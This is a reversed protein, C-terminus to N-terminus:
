TVEGRQYTLGLRDRHGHQNVSDVLNQPKQQSQQLSSRSRSLKNLQDLTFQSSSPASKGVLLLFVSGLSSKEFQM